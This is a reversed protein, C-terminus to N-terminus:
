TASGSRLAEQSRHQVSLLAPDRCGQALYPLNDPPLEIAEASCECLVGVTVDTCITHRGCAYTNGSAPEDCSGHTGM